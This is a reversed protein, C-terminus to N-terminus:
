NRRVDGPVNPMDIPFPPRSLKKFIRRLRAELCEDCVGSMRLKDTAQVDGEVVLPKNCTTCNHFYPMSNLYIRLNSM